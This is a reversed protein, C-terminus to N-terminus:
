GLTVWENEAMKLPGGGKAKVEFVGFSLYPIVPIDIYLRQLGGKEPISPTGVSYRM